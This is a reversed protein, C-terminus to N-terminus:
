KSPGALICIAVYVAGFVTLAVGLSRPSEQRQKMEHRINLFLKQSGVAFGISAISSLQRLLTVSEPPPVYNSTNEEEETATNNNHALLCQVVVIGLSTLSIVTASKGLNAMTRIQSLAFMLTSALIGALPLCINAEGVMAAVAHSMVLIYDGLVLFINTYYFALVIRFAHRNSPFLEQTLGIYDFTSSDHDHHPSDPHDDNNDPDKTPVVANKNVNGIDNTDKTSPDTSPDTDTSTTNSDTTQLSNSTCTNSVVDSSAISSYARRGKSVRVLGDRGVTSTMVEEDDNTDDNSDDNPEDEIYTAAQALITGAYLNIPLCLILFGLGIVKGLLLIDQPLALLGTGLCDATLLAAAQLM